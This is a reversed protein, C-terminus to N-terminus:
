TQDIVCVYYDPLWDNLPHEHLLSAVECRRSNVGAISCCLSFLTMRTSFKTFPQHLRFGTLFRANFPKKPISLLYQGLYNKFTPQNKIYMEITRLKSLFLISLNRILPFTIEEYDVNDDVDDDDDDDLSILFKDIFYSFSLVKHWPWDLCSLPWWRLFVAEVNHSAINWKGLQLLNNM